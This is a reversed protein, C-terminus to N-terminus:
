DWLRVKDSQLNSLEEQLSSKSALNDQFQYEVWQLPVKADCCAEEVTRSQAHNEHITASM